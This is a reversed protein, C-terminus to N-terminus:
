KSGMTIGFKMDKYLLHRGVKRIFPCCIAHKFSYIHKSFFQYTSNIPTNIKRLNQLRLSVFFAKDDIFLILWSSYQVYISSTSLKQTNMLSSKERPPRRPFDRSLRMRGRLPLWNSCLIRKM